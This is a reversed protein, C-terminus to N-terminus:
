FNYENAIELASVIDLNPTFGFMELYQIEKLLESLENSLRGTNPPVTISKQKTYEHYAARVTIRNMSQGLELMEIVRPVQM